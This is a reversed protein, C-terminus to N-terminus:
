SGESILKRNDISLLSVRTILDELVLDITEVSQFTQEALISAINSVEGKADAIADSWMRAFIFGTALAAASFIIIASLAVRLGLSGGRSM